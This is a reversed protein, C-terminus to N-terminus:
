AFKLQGSDEAEIKMNGTRKAVCLEPLNVRVLAAPIPPCVANGCRKVQESRPYEPIPLLTDYVPSVCGALCFIVTSCVASISIKLPSIKMM